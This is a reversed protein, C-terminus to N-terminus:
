RNKWAARINDVQKAHSDVHRVFLEVLSRVTMPGRVSHQGTRDMAKEGADELLDANDNRMVRFKSLSDAIPANSYALRASWEDQKFANMPPNDEAIMQRFRTAAVIETDLVHRLIQRINWKGDAPSFMAEEDTVGAVATELFEPGQRYRGILENM